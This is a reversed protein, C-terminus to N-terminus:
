GKTTDNTETGTETPKQSRPNSGLKRLIAWTRKCDIAIKVGYTSQCMVFGLCNRSGSSM